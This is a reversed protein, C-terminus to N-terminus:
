FFCEEGNIIENAQKKDKNSIIFEATKIGSLFAFHMDIYRFQAQRGTLFINNLKALYQKVIELNADYGITYIPYAHPLKITFYDIVNNNGIIKEEELDKVVKELLWKDTAQWIEDGLDCTIECMLGTMGDPYCDIGYNKIDSLRTFFKDSFYLTQAEFLRDKNVILCVVVESRYKFSSAAKLIEKDNVPKMLNITENIPITSIVVDAQIERKMGEQSYTVNTKSGNLAIGEIKSSFHLQGKNEKIKEVLRQSFAGAGKKPYGFKLVIPAYLGDNNKAQAEKPLFSKIIVRILNMTPVRLRAFKPSLKDPDIGWVRKTYPGFYIDYLKRGYHNAIWEQASLNKPKRIRNRILTYFYSFFCAISLLPNLKALLDAVKLPYRYYKGQFQIRVDKDKVVYEDENMIERFIEYFPKNEVAYMHPAHDFVYPERKLSASMGGPYTKYELIEVSHGEKSLKWAASLGALGSGLIVVKKYKDM